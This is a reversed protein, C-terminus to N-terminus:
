LSLFKITLYALFLLILIISELVSIGRKTGLFVLVFLTALFLLPLDIFLLNNELELTSITGGIGIPILGDFINSGIINGISLGASKRFAAGISVALEPLSTGIGIIVIGIFSQAVGWRVALKMSNEVVLHSSFVLVFFGLLLLLILKVNSYTKTESNDSEDDSKSKVLIFYYLIYGLLLLIGELRSIHGDLAFVFVLLISGLLASGDRFLDSKKMKFNLFLGAIGLIITIQSFCSGIANGVIIGSSEIGRLQMFSAKLSVFLEPLDTGVALVAVGVFSHSLNFRKAIGLAGNIIFKTGFWLGVLGVLILIFNMLLYYQDLFLLLFKDSDNVKPDNM